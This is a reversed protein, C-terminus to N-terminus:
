NIGGIRSYDPAINGEDTGPVIIFVARGLIERLDILGINPSRSDTSNNRNDGMVFVCGEDVVLPFEVGEQIMPRHDDDHFFAYSEDLPQDDVYVTRNDFDIDVKQGETAIVRKVICEGDRFSDKSAVIIDGQKPNHYLTRSILLIRDGDVLTQKMSEGEVIVVRFCLAYVLLFAVLIYIVDRFDRFFAHKWNQPQQSDAKQTRFFRSFFAM